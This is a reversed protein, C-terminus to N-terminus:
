FVRNSRKFLFAVTFDSWAEWTMLTMNSAADRKVLKHRWQVETVGTILEYGQVLQAINDPCPKILMFNCKETQEHFFAIVHNHSISTKEM